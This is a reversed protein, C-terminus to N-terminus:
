AAMMRRVWGQSMKKVLNNVPQGAPLAAPGGGLLASLDIDVRAITYGLLSFTIIM